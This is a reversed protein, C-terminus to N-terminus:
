SLRGEVVELLDCMTVIDSRDSLGLERKRIDLRDKPYGEQLGRQILKRNWVHVRLDAPFVVELERDLLPGSPHRYVAEMLSEFSIRLHECLLDDFGRGLTKAYSDSLEDAWHRRIKELVRPLHMLGCPHPLYPSPLPNEVGNM